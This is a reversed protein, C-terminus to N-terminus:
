LAVFSFPTRGDTWGCGAAEKEFQVVSFVLPRECGAFVAAAVGAQLTARLLPLDLLSRGIL